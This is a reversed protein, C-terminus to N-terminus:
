ALSPLCASSPYGPRDIIILETAVMTPVKFRFIPVTVVMTPVKLRFIPVTAVMTPVKFLLIPVTVVIQATVVAVGFTCALSPM